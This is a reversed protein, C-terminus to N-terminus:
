TKMCAAYIVDKAWNEVEANEDIVFEQGRGASQFYEEEKWPNPHYSITVKKFIKPNLSWKSRSCGKKTLVLKENFTFPNAGLMNQDFSLKDAAVYITNTKDRSLRELKVHPHYQMWEEIHSSPDTKRIQGIQMYGFIVHLDPANQDFALKGNISVTQKFWGFFLFLDGIDVRQNELHRQAANVQGFLPKWNKHRLLVRRYIDPDLHCRFTHVAVSLEAMLDYYTRKEDLILETYAVPGEESPIPFSILRGDPLIPSPSNGYKSDFGKRSLIVKMNQM